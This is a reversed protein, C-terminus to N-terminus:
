KNSKENKNEKKGIKEKLIKNEEKFKIYDYKAVIFVLLVIGTVIIAVITLIMEGLSM